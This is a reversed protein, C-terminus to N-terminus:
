RRVSFEYAVESARSLNCSDDIPGHKLNEGFNRPTAVKSKQLVIQWYVVDCEQNLIFSAASRPRGVRDLTGVDIENGKSIFLHILTYHGGQSM